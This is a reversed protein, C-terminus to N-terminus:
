SLNELIIFTRITITKQIIEYVGVCSLQQDLIQPCSHTTTQPSSIAAECHWFSQYHKIIYKTLSYNLIQIENIVFKLCKLIRRISCVISSWIVLSLSACDEYRWFRSSTIALLEILYVHKWLSTLLNSSEYLCPWSWRLDVKHVIVFVWLQCLM